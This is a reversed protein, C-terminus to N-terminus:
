PSPTLPSQMRQRVYDYFRHSSSREHGLGIVPCPVGLITLLHSELPCLDTRRDIILLHRLSSDPVRYDPTDIAAAWLTLQRAEARSMNLDKFEREVTEAIQLDQDGYAPVYKELTDVADALFVGIATGIGWEFGAAVIAADDSAGHGPRFRIYQYVVDPDNKKEPGVILGKREFEEIKGAWEGHALQHGDLGMRRMVARDVLYRRGGVKVGMQEEVQVRIEWEDRLGGLYLGRLVDAAEVQFYRLTGIGLLPDQDRDLLHAPPRGAITEQVYWRISDILAQQEGQVAQPDLRLARAIDDLSTDPYHRGNFAGTGEQARSQVSQFLILQEIAWSTRLTDRDDLLRFDARLQDAPAVGPPSPAM